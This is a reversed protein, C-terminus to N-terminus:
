KLCLRIAQLKSNGYSRICDSAFLIMEDAKKIMFNESGYTM